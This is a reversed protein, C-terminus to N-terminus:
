PGTIIDRVRREGFLVLFFMAVFFRVSLGPSFYFIGTNILAGFTTLFVVSTLPLLVGGVDLFPSFFLCFTSM